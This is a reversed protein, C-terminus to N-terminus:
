KIPFNVNGSTQTICTSATCTLNITQTQTSTPSTFATGSAAQPFQSAPITYPSVTSTVSLNISTGSAINSSNLVASEVSHTITLNTGPGVTAGEVSEQGTLYAVLSTSGSTDSDSLTASNEFTGFEEIGVDGAGALYGLNLNSIGPQSNSNNGLALTSSSLVANL